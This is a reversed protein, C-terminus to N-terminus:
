LRKVSPRSPTAWEHCLDDLYKILKDEHIDSPIEIDRALRKKGENGLYYAQWCGKVREVQVLRGYVDFLM